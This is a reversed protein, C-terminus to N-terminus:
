EEEEFVDRWGAYFDAKMEAAKRDAHHDFEWWCNSCLPESMEDGDWRVTVGSESGCEACIV